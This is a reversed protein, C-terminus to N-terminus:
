AENEFGKKWGDMSDIEQTFTTYICVPLSYQDKTLRDLPKLNNEKFRSYNNDGGASSINLGRLM